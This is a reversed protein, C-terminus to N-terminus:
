RVQPSLLLLIIDLEQSVANVDRCHHLFLRRDLSRRHERRRGHVLIDLWCRLLLCLYLKQQIPEHLNFLVGQIGSLRRGVHLDECRRLQLEDVLACSVAERSINEM